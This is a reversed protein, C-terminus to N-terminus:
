NQGAISLRDDSRAPESDGYGAGGLLELSLRRSTAAGNAAAIVTGSEGDRPARCLTNGPNETMEAASDAFFAEQSDYLLLPRFRELLERARDATMEETM